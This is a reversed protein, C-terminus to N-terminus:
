CGIYIAIETSFRLNKWGRHMKRGRLFPEKSNPVPAPPSWFSYFSPAVPGLFFNRWSDPCTRSLRVYVSPCVGPSLVESVFPTARYFSGSDYGRAYLCVSDVHVRFSATLSSRRNFWPGRHLAVMEFTRPQIVLSIFCSAWSISVVPEVRIATLWRWCVYYWEM